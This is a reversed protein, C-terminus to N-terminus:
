GSLGGQDQSQGQKRNHVQLFNEGPLEVESVKFHGGWLSVAMGEQQPLARAEPGLLAM